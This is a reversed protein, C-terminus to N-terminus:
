RSRGSFGIQEQSGQAVVSVNVAKSPSEGALSWIENIGLRINQIKAMNM